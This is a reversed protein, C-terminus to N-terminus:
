KEDCRPRRGAEWRPNRRWNYKRTFNNNIEFIKKGRAAAAAIYLSPAPGDNFSRAYIYIASGGCRLIQLHLQPSLALRKHFFSNNKRTQPSWIKKRGNGVRLGGASRVPIRFIVRLFDYARKYVHISYVTYTYRTHFFSVFDVVGFLRTTQPVAASPVRACEDRVSKEKVEAAAASAEPCQM